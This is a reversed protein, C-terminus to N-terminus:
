ESLEIELKIVAKGYKQTKLVDNVMQGIKDTENLKISNKKCCCSMQGFSNDNVILEVSDSKTENGKCKNQNDKKDAIIKSMEQRQADSTIQYQDVADSAHGMFEKVIKRDVGALYYVLQVLNAYATTPLSGM